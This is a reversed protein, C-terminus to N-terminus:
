YGVGIKELFICSDSLFNHIEIFVIFKLFKHNKQNNLSQNPYQPWKFFIYYVQEIYNLKYKLRIANYVQHPNALEDLSTLVM